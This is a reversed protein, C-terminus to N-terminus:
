LDKILNKVSSHILTIDNRSFKQRSYRFIEPDWKSAISWETFLSKGIKKSKGSLSLLVDLDHSKFTRYDELKGPPYEQWDMVVIGLPPWRM